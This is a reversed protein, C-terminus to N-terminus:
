PISLKVPMSYNDLDIELNGKDIRNCSTVIRVKMSNDLQQNTYVLHMGNKFNFVIGDPSEQASIFYSREVKFEMGLKKVTVYQKLNEIPKRKIDDLIKQVKPDMKVDVVKPTVEKNIESKKEDKNSTTPIILQEM